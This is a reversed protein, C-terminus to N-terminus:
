RGMMDRRRDDDMYGRPGYGGRGWGYSSHWQKLQDRQEKTLVAEMRNQAEVMQEIMKRRVDFIRGYVAGIKRADRKDENYLKSLASEEKAIQEMSNFHSKRMESAIAEIKDRQADTLDLMHMPGMGYVGMHYGGTGMGYGGMMGPGMGYGGMHYGGYGGMGYGGMHYGGYGRGMMGRGWDDRDMMPGEPDAMARGMALLPGVALAVALMLRPAITAKM